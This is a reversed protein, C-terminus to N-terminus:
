KKKLPPFILYKKLERENTREKVTYTTNIKANIDMKVISAKEEERM